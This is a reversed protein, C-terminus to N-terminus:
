WKEYLHRNCWFDWREKWNNLDLGPVRTFIDMSSSDIKEGIHIEHVTTEIGPIEFRLDDCRAALIVAVAAQTYCVTPRDSFSLLFGHVSVDAYLYKRTKNPFIVRICYLKEDM